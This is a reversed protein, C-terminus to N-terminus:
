RPEVGFARQIHATLKGVTDCQGADEDPIEIGFEEECRMFVEVVDLSCDFDKYWDADPTVRSIDVSLEDAVLESVKSEIKAADNWILKQQNFDLSEKPKSTALAKILKWLM